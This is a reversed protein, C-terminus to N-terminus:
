QLGGGGQGHIDLLALLTDARESLNAAELLAQKEEPEFPCMLCLANVLAETPAGEMGSWDARFGRAEVYRALSAQLRDRDITFDQPQNALDEDFDAFGAEIQRYPTPAEIERRIRFRCIGTLTILYRGDDTEGYSTIRGVCGVDQLDPRTAPAVPQVMGILRAGSLADDVLNLYRPEFINLPLRARPLLLVGSLPFVPILRPLDDAKRYGYAGM